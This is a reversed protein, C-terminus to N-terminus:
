IKWTKVFIKLGPFIFTYFFLIGVNRGDPNLIKYKAIIEEMAPIHACLYTCINQQAM